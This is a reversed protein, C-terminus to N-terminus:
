PQKNADSPTPSTPRETPAMGPPNEGTRSTTQGGGLKQQADQAHQLHTQVRPKLAQLQAKLQADKAAPILVDTILDLAKQHDAIQQELYTQDFDKGTKSTLADKQANMDTTLSQVTSNSMNPTLHASTTLANEQALATTHENIMMNAFAKVDRSQSKQKAVNAVDIEGKNIAMVIAVIDDDSLQQSTQGPTGPMTGTQPTPAQSPQAATNPTTNMSSGTTNSLGTSSTTAPSQENAVGAGPAPQYGNTM